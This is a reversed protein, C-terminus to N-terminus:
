ISLSILLPEESAGNALPSAVLAVAVSIVASAWYEALSIPLNALSLSLASSLM